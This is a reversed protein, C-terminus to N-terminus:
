DVEEWLVEGIICGENMMYIWDCMGLIEFFEFFIFCVVKGNVVMEEIIM